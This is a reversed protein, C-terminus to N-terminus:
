LLFLLVFGLCVLAVAACIGGIFTRATSAVAQLAVKSASASGVGAERRRCAALVAGLLIVLVGILAGWLFNMPLGPQTGGGMGSFMVSMLSVLIFVALSGATIVVGIPILAIALGSRVQDLGGRHPAKPLVYWDAPRSPPNDMFNTYVIKIACDV